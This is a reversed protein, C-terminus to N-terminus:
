SSKTCIVDTFKSIHVTCPLLGHINKLNAQTSCCTFSSSDWALKLCWCNRPTWCLPVACIKVSTFYMKFDHTMSIQLFKASGTCKWYYYDWVLKWDSRAILDHSCIKGATRVWEEVSIRERCERRGLCLPESNCFKCKQPSWNELIKYTPVPLNFCFMALFESSASIAKGKM